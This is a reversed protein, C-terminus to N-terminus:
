RPDEDLTIRPMPIIFQSALRSFIAPLPQALVRSAITGFYLHTDFDWWRFWRYWYIHQAITCTNKCPGYFENREASLTRM